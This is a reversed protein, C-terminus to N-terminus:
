DTDHNEDDGDTSAAIQRETAQGAGVRHIVLLREVAGLGGLYGASASLARHVTEHRDL